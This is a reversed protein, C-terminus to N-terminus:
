PLLRDPDSSFAAKELSCFQKRHSAIVRYAWDTPALMWGPLLSLVGFFSWPWGLLWAIRAIARSYFSIRKGNETEVLVLSDVTPHALRWESLVQAATKGNLPAFFFLNKKDRKLLFRVSWSCLGCDNDFFIIKM